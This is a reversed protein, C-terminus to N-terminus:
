KRSGVHKPQTRQVVLHESEAATVNEYLDKLSQYASAPFEIKGVTLNTTITIKRGDVFCTRSFVADSGDVSAKKNRIYGQVEFGPPLTITVKTRVTRPYNFDIPFDRKPRTFPNTFERGVIFPNLYMLDGSAQVYSTSSVHGRVTLPQSLSDRGTVDVSDIVLSSRDADFIKKALDIARGDKLYKRGLLAAYGNDVSELTGNIEGSEDVDLTASLRRDFQQDTLLTAWRPEGEAIILGGTNLVKTPLL